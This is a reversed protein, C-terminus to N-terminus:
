RERVLRLKSVYRIKDRKLNRVDHPSPLIFFRSFHASKDPLSFADWVRFILLVKKRSATVLVLLVRMSDYQLKIKNATANQCVNAQRLETRIHKRCPCVIQRACSKKSSKLIARLNYRVVFITCVHHSQCYSWKTFWKLSFTRFRKSRALLFRHRGTSILVAFLRLNCGPIM